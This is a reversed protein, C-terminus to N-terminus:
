GSAEEPPFALALLGSWTEVVFRHFCFRLGEWMGRLTEESRIRRYQADSRELVRHTVFSLLNLFYLVTALGQQGHGFNHELAYGGRKHVNFQENEVKWRTRGLQVVEAVTERTVDLDTVWSAHFRVAGDKGREWVEVFTVWAERADTLPVQRCIRAEFYRRKSAVGEVWEVREVWDTRQELDEVWAFTEPQSGPKVSLLFRLDREALVALTPEHAFIADGLILMRLKPHERRLRALVRKGANTECDQKDAGDTNAIPEADIPLAKRAGAQVLTAALVSHRYLTKGEGLDAHLCKPCSIATSAHYDTGDIAVPYLSGLAASTRYELAWGSRRFREFVQGLLRRLPDYPVPDLIDRLQTDSPIQTTGFVTELNSRGARRALDRQHKLLSPQQFFFCAFATTAADRMAYTVREPRRADPLREFTRCLLAVM